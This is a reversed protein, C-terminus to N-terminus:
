QRVWVGTPRATTPSTPSTFRSGWPLPFDVGLLLLMVTVGAGTVLNVIARLGFQRVVSQGIVTLRAVQPNDAAVSSRLRDMMTGGEPLLFLVIMLILFLSSLFGAVGSLVAGVAGVV